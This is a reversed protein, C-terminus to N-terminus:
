EIRGHAPPQDGVNREAGEEAAADVRARDDPQHACRHGLRHLGERDAELVPVAEVLPGVGLGHRSRWRVFWWSNTTWGSATSRTSFSTQCWSWGNPSELAM